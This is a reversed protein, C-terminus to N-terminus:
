KARCLASVYVQRPQQALLLIIGVVIGVVLLVSGIIIVLALNNMVFDHIRAPLDECSQHDDFPFNFNFGGGQGLNALWACFGIVFWRGLDFPSFLIDKVKEIAPEIPDIVSVRSTETTM